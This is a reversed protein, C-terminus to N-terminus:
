FGEYAVERVESAGIPSYHHGPLTFTDMIDIRFFLIVAVDVTNALPILRIALSNTRAHRHPPPTILGTEYERVM